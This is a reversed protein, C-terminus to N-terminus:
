RTSHSHCRRAVPRRVALAHAAHTALWLGARRPEWPGGGSLVAPALAPGTACCLGHVGHGVMCSTGGGNPEPTQCMFFFFFRLLFCPFLCFFFFRLLSGGLRSRQSSGCCCARTAVGVRDRCATQVSRHAPSSLQQPFVGLANALAADRPHQHGARWADCNRVCRLCTLANLDNIARLVTRVTEVAAVSSTHQRPGVITFLLELLEARIADSPLPQSLLVLLAQISTSWSHLRWVGSLLVCWVGRPCTSILPTVVFGFLRPVTAIHFSVSAVVCGGAEVFHEKNVTEGKARKDTDPEGVREIVMRLVELTHMLLMARRHLQALQIAPLLMTPYLPLCLARFFLVVCCRLVSTLYMRLTGPFTLQPPPRVNLCKLLLKINDLALLKYLPKSTLVRELVSLILRIQYM